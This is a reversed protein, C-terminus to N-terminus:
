DLLTYNSKLLASNPFWTKLSQSMWKTIYIVKFHDNHQIEAIIFFCKDNDVYIENIKPTYFYDSM